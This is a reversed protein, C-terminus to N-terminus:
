FDAIMQVKVETKRNGGIEDLGSGVTDKETYLTQAWRCWVTVHKSLDYNVNVYYRYGKDFFGPVSFSYLVDSEYAYIRSNYGNTEFYQLRLNSQLRKYKYAGEIFYLFGDEADENRKNFWVAEARTKLTFVPSLKTAFNVRLNQRLQDDPYNTAVAVENLPKNKTRYLVYMDTQKDPQYNLQLFYAAGKSPADVRYRLWPFSFVDAYANLQWGSMPRLVIGAYGGTENVPLTNETFANGFLSQYDKQIGRYLIAVDVKPDVSIMAGSVFAKHFNNDTAAEGFVHFNKHTFSYDVSFNWLRDGSFVFYNYPANRKQLQKSFNHSVANVGITFNPKRLSVNGGYSFDNIANKDSIEGPTRFYGSTLFSSFGNSDVVNASVNTYSVFATAEVNGWQMTVGAGRNFNFELASRHPVLVPSQRKSNVVDAGKGFGLSQWQILGQGLNVAFDGLALSKITGFKRAFFHVSYFDFGQAQAGKFFQEGADKDAVLGYQLLDKYQYRYRFFLHNRDGLYHNELDTNYGKSKELIRSFRFLVADDGGTFRSLFDEQMTIAPGITVYPLLKSITVIDLTPVAQLEYIDIFKGLLNRYQLLNNIQLDTLLRLSQVESAGAVNLNLPHKRFYELEQLFSDDQLDEDETADALAELQEQTKVPVEQALCHIACCICFVIAIHKIMRHQM